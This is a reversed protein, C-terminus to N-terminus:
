GHSEVLERLNRWGYAAEVVEVGGVATIKERIRKAGLAEYFECAPNDALVWLLMSDFGRELLRRAVAVTLRRGIGRRQQSEPLYIAYLEGSYAADGEREAGGSAFGIIAGSEDEAVYVSNREKYISLVESWLRERGAYSLSALFESPLIGAYTTRWSDVHVKAIAAADSPSAERIRM